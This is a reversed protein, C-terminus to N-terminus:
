VLKAKKLVERITDYTNSLIEDFENQAFWKAISIDEAQQPILPEHGDYKMHFWHTEKLLFSYGLKYTHYTNAIHSNLILGSIGTEESVERFAADEIKEGLELKGKPLDWKGYRFIFLYEGKSNQVLGGAALIMKHKSLIADLLSQVSKGSIFVNEVEASSQFFDLIKSLEQYTDFRIFLGNQNNFHSELSKTLVIKRKDFYISYEKSM